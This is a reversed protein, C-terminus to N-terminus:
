CPCLSCAFGWEGLTRNCYKKAAECGGKSYADAAGQGVVNIITQLWDPIGAGTIEDLQEDTLKKLNNDM